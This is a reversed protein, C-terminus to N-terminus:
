MLATGGGVWGSCSCAVFRTPMLHNFNVAKVFPKIRSRRAVKKQSMGRTVHLPYKDIGAVVAFGYTRKGDGEESARVIVAKRGAYRGNL